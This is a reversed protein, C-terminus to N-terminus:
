LKVWTQARVEGGHLTLTGWAQPFGRDLASTLGMVRLNPTQARWFGGGTTLM